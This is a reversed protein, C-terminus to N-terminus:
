GICRDEFRRHTPDVVVYNPDPGPRRCSTQIEGFLDLISHCAVSCMFLYLHMSSVSRLVGVCVHVGVYVYMYLYVCVYMNIFM